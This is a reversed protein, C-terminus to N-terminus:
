AASRDFSMVDDRTDNAAMGGFAVQAPGAFRTAHAVEHLSPQSNARGANQNAAARRLDAFSVSAFMSLLASPKMSPM